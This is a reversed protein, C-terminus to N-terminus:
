RITGAVENAKKWDEHRIWRNTSAQFHMLAGRHYFQHGVRANEYVLEMTDAGMDSYPFAGPDHQTGSNDKRTALNLAHGIEHACAGDFKSYARLDFLVDNAFRQAFVIVKRSIGPIPCFGATDKRTPKAIDKAIILNLKSNIRSSDFIAKYETDTPVDTQLKGDKPASDYSIETGARSVSTWWEYAAEDKIYQPQGSSTIKTGVDNPILPDYGSMLLGDVAKFRIPDAKGPRPTTAPAVAPMVAVFSGGLSVGTPAGIEQDPPTNIEDVQAEGSQNKTWTFQKSVWEGPSDGVLCEASFTITPWGTSAHVNTILYPM